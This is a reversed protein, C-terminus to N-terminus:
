KGFGAYPTCINAAFSSVRLVFRGHVSNVPCWSCSLHNQLSVPLHLCLFNILLLKWLLLPNIMKVFYKIFHWLGTQSHLCNHSDQSCHPFSQLFEQYQYLHVLLSFPRLLPLAAPTSPTIASVSFAASCSIAGKRVLYKLTRKELGCNGDSHVFANYNLEM